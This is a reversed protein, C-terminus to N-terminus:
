EMKIGGVAFASSCGNTAIATATKFPSLATLERGKIRHGTYGLFRDIVAKVGLLFLGLGKLDPGEWKEVRKVLPKRIFTTPKKTAQTLWVVSDQNKVM